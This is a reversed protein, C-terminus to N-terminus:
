WLAEVPLMKMTRNEKWRKAATTDGTGAVIRRGNSRDTGLSNLFRRGVGTMIFIRRIAKIVSVLVFHVLKSNGTYYISSLIM